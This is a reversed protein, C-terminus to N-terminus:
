SRAWRVLKFVIAVVVLRLLYGPAGIALWISCVIALTIASDVLLWAIFRAMTPPKPAQHWYRKGSHELDSM